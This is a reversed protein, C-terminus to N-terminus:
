RVFKKFFCYIHGFMAKNNAGSNFEHRLTAPPYSPLYRGNKLSHKFKCHFNFIWRDSISTPLLWGDFLSKKTLTAFFGMQKQFKSLILKIFADWCIRTVRTKVLRSLWLMTFCHDLSGRFTKRTVIRPMLNDIMGEYNTFLGLQM